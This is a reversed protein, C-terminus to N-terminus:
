GRADAMYGDDTDPTFKHTMKAKKSFWQDCNFTWSEATGPVSIVVQALEWETHRMHTVGRGGNSELEISKIEGLNKLEFQFTDTQGKEFKNRKDSSKLALKSSKNVSGVISLTVKADTGANKDKGTKVKVEYSKVATSSAAKPKAKAKAPPKRTPPAVSAAEEPAPLVEKPAPAAASTTSATAKGTPPTFGRRTFKHELGHTKKAFWKDCIFSFQGGKDDRILFSEPKWEPHSLKTGTAGDSTVTIYNVEGLYVLKGMNFVDTKGHEFKNRHTKSKKLQHPGSSGGVSGHFVVAINSDTSAHKETSTVVELEYEAKEAAEKGETQVSKGDASLSLKRSLSLEIPKKKEVCQDCDFEFRQATEANIMSVREPKWKDWLGAGDHELRIKIPVGIEPLEFSLTDVDGGEFMDNNSQDTFDCVAETSEGDKEGYVTMKINADTGSGTERATAVVVDWAHLVELQTSDSPKLMCWLLGDDKSKALWRGAEFNVNVGKQAMGVHIKDLHWSPDTAKFVSGGLSRSNDHWVKMKTLPGIDPAHFKFIDRQKRQFPDRHVASKALRQEGTDGNEGYIIIHVKADTGAGVIDSTYVEIAYELGVAKEVQLEAPGGGAPQLTKNLGKSKSLWSHCNFTTDTGGSRPDTVSVTELEWASGGAADNDHWVQLVKLEGLDAAEVIFTDTHGSEFKNWHEKSKRLERDGTDGNEGILTIHVTADTGAGRAKGTVVAVEYPVLDAAVVDEEIGDIVKSTVPFEAEIGEKKRLWRDAHCKYLIDHKKDLLAISDLHWTAGGFGKNDHRVRIKNITKITDFTVDFTDSAGGKFSKGTRALKMEETKGEDGYVMVYVQANDLSAGKDSGTNFTLAYDAMPKEQALEAELATIETELKHDNKGEELWREAMFKYYKGLAPVEIRVSELYWGAGMGKGDHGILIKSLKGLDRGRLNFIDTRSREFKDSHGVSKALPFRDSEGKEGFMQLHVNADTGAYKEDGTKVLVKFDIEEDHYEDRVGSEETYEATTLAEAKPSMVFANRKQEALARKAAEAQEHVAVKQQEAANQREVQLAEAAANRREVQLAEVAAEKQQALTKQYAEREAAATAATEQARQQQEAASSKASEIERRAKEFGRKLDVLEKQAVALARHTDSAVDASTQFKEISASTEALDHKAQLLETKTKELSGHLTDVQERERKLDEELERKEKDAQQQIMQGHSQSKRAENAAENAIKEVEEQAQEQLLKFHATSEDARQKTEEYQAQVSQLEGQTEDHQAVEEALQQSLDANKALADQLENDPLGARQKLFKILFPHPYTPMYEIMVALMDEMLNDLDHREIYAEAQLKNLRPNGDGRMHQRAPVPMDYLAAQMADINRTANLRDNEMAMRTAELEQMRATATRVKEQDEIITKLQAIRESEDKARLAHVREEEVQQELRALKSQASEYESKMTASLSELEVRSPIEATSSFNSMAETSAAAM